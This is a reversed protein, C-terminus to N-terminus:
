FKVWNKLYNVIKQLLGKSDNTSIASLDLILKIKNAENKYENEFTAKIH